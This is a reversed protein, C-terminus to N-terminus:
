NLKKIINILKNTNKLHPIKNLLFGDKDIIYVFSTHSVSYNMKSDKLHEKAYYTGYNSTITKLYKQNSTIGIAGKYFYNAYEKLEKLKDRQPDVSIFIVQFKNAQKKPLSNLASAIISLSTPCIDPCYMYGFYILKYKGNYDSLSIKGDISDMNFEYQM